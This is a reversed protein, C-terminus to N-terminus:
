VGGTNTVLQIQTQQKHLHRTRKEKNHNKKEDKGGQLIFTELVPGLFAAPHVPVNSNSHLVADHQYVVGNPLKTNLIYTFDDLIWSNM